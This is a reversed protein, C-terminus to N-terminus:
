ALLNIFNVIQSAGNRSAIMEIRTGVRVFGAEELIPADKTDVLLQTRDVRNERHVRIADQALAILADRRAAADKRTPYLRALETYGPFSVGQTTVEVLAFGNPGSPSFSMRVLRQRVIGVNGYLRQVKNLRLDGANTLDFASRELPRVVERAREAIWELDGPAAEQVDHVASAARQPESFLVREVWYIGNEDPPM